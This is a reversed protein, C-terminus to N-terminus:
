QMVEMSFNEFEATDLARFVVYEGSDFDSFGSLELCKKEDITVCITDNVRNFIIEYHNRDFISGPIVSSQLLEMYTDSHSRYVQLRTKEDGFHDPDYTIWILISHGAGYGSHTIVRDRYIHVGLGAWGSGTSRASFSYKTVNADQFVPVVLKAFLQIPDTQEGRKETVTWSGLAPNAGSFSDLVIMTRKEEEESAAEFSNEDMALLAAYLGSLRLNEAALEEATHPM